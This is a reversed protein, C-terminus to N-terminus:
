ELLLGSVRISPYQQNWESPVSQDLTVQFDRQKTAALPDDTRDIIRESDKLIVQNFRDHFEVTVELGRITRPGDNSMNAAVYTFQQNLLNSSQALHISQFHIQAAYAQEEPGFPLKQVASVQKPQTARSLLVMGGVVLAVVILGAFFAAPLGSREEREPIPEPIPEPDM